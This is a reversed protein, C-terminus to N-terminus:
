YQMSRIFDKFHKLFNLIVFILYLIIAEDTSNKVAEFDKLFSWMKSM